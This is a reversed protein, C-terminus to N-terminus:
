KKQLIANLIKSFKEAGENTLHDADRFDSDIFSEEQSFDFFHVGKNQEELNTLTANIKEKKATDLLSYYTKYVPMEILYVAVGNKNCLDIIRQLRIKNVDFDLLHDEHKKAIMVAIKEKDPVINTEDQMGFGNEYCSVITGNQLYEGFLDVSKDFRRVLALSYQSPDFVSISPINLNMQQQYFYRRWRDESSNDVASLTFYSINLIVNKLNPLSDIHKKLLLEDFYLSQSVNAINFTNSTFYEPNIGFFAHSDGFVLTEIQNYESIIRQNKFTFNNEATRYFVETIGWVVFVPILFILLNKYFKKM